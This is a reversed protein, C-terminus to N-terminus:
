RMVCETATAKRAVRCAYTLRMLTASGMPFRSCRTAALTSDTIRLPTKCGCALYGGAGCARWPSDTGHRVLHM